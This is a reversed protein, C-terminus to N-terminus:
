LYLLCHSIFAVNKDGSEKLFISLKSVQQM